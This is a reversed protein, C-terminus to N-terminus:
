RGLKEQHHPFRAAFTQPWNVKSRTKKFPIAAPSAPRNQSRMAESTSLLIKM